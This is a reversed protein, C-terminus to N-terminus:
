IQYLDLYQGQFLLKTINAQGMLKLVTDYYPYGLSTGALLSKDLLLYKIGDSSLYQLYTPDLRVSTSLGVHPTSMHITTISGLNSVQLRIIINTVVSSDYKSDPWPRDPSGTLLDSIISNGMREYHSNGSSGLIYWGTYGDNSSVGIWLGHSDLMKQFVDVMPSTISVELFPHTTLNLPRATPLIIDVPNSGLPVLSM